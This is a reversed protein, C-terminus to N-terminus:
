MFRTKRWFLCCLRLLTARATVPERKPVIECAPDRGKDIADAMCRLANMGAHYRGDSSAQMSNSAVTCPSHRVADGLLAIRRSMLSPLPNIRTYDMLHAKRYARRMVLQPGTIPTPPIKSVHMVQQFEPEVWPGDFPSGELGPRSVQEEWLVVVTLAKSVRHGPNQEVVKEKSVRGRYAPNGTWAPDIYSLLDEALQLRGEEAAKDAGTRFISGRVAFQIADAAFLLDCTTGAEFCLSVPLDASEREKVSVLHKFLHTECSHPTHNLVIKRINAQHFTVFGAADRTDHFNVGEAMDSKRADNAISGKWTNSTHRPISQSVRRTWICGRYSERRAGTGGYDGLRRLVTWYWFRGRLILACVIAVRFKPETM